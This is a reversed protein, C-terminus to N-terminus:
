RESEQFPPNHLNSIAGGYGVSPDIIKTVNSPTVYFDIETKALAKKAVQYGEVDTIYANCAAYYALAVRATNLAEALRSIRASQLEIHCLLCWPHDMRPEYKQYRNIHGCSQKSYIANSDAEVQLKLEAVERELAVKQTRLLALEQRTKEDLVPEHPFTM